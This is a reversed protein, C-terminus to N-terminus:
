KPAGDVTQKAKFLIFFYISCSSMKMMMKRDKQLFEFLYERELVMQYEWWYRALIPQKFFEFDILDKWISKKKVKHLMRLFENQIHM